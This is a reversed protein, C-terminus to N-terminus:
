ERKEKQSKKGKKGEIKLENIKEWKRRNKEESKALKKLFKKKM